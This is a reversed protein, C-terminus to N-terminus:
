SKEQLKDMDRAIKGVTVKSYVQTTSIKTHGLMKSVTEIPIGRSLTITTAFTHRALHSTLRKKLGIEEALLKLQRNYAQNTSVEFIFGENTSQKRGELIEKAKSLLPVTTLITTKERPKMIWDNGEHNFLIHRWELSALDSHALGTYIQFVFQERISLLAKTPLTAKELLTIEEETLFGRDFKDFSITFTQLPNTNIWGERISWNIIKKLRQIHKSMGNNNSKTNLLIWNEFRKAFPMDIEELLMDNRKYVQKLFQKLFGVTTLYYQYTKYCYKINLLSKLEENHKQGANLITAEENANKTSLIVKLIELTIPKGKILLQNIAQQVKLKVQELYQNTTGAFEDKGNIKQKENSWRKLPVKKNVSLLLKKNDSTLRLYIPANGEEDVREERLIFQVKIRKIATM